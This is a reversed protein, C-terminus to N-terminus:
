EIIRRITRIMNRDKDYRRRVWESAASPTINYFDGLAKLTFFQMGKVKYSLQITSKPAIKNSTTM